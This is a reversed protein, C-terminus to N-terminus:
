RVVQKYEPQSHSHIGRNFKSSNFYGAELCDLFTQYAEEDVFKALLCVKENDDEIWMAAKGDLEGTVVKKIVM